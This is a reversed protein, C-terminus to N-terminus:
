KLATELHTIGKNLPEFATGLETKKGTIRTKYKGVIEKAKGKYKQVDAAKNKKQASELNDLVPGLGLEFKIPFATLGQTHVNLLEGAHAKKFAEESEEKRTQWVQRLTM